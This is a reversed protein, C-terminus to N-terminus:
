NKLTVKSLIRQVTAPFVYLTLTFICRAYFHGVFSVYVRQVGFRQTEFDEKLTDHSEQLLQLDKEKQALEAALNTVVAESRELSEGNSSLDHRVQKLVENLDSIVAQLNSPFVCCGCTVVAGEPRFPRSWPM